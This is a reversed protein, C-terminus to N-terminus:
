IRKTRKHKRMKRISRRKKITRRKKGAGTHRARNRKNREEDRRSIAETIVELIEGHGPAEALYLPSQKYENDIREDAGHKILLRVIEPMDEIVAVHLATNGTLDKSNANAGANLLKQVIAPRNMETAKYLPTEGFINKHEINAGHDILFNAINDFHSYIAFFLPTEKDETTEINILGGHKVLKELIDINECTSAAIHMATRSQHDSVNPNAGYALLLDIIKALRAKREPNNENCYFQIAGILSTSGNTNHIDIWRNFHTKAQKTMELIERVDDLNAQSIHRLLYNVDYQDAKYDSM